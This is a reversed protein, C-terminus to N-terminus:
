NKPLDQAPLWLEDHIQQNTPDIHSAGMTEVSSDRFLVNIKGHHRLRMESSWVDLHDPGVVDAVPKAYDLFLIKEPDRDEMRHAMGNMGYHSGYVHILDDDVEGDTGDGNGGNNGGNDNPDETKFSLVDGPLSGRPYDGLLTGDPAYVKLPHNGSKGPGKGVSYVEVSTTGDAHHEIILESDNYDQVNSGFEFLLHYRNSPYTHGPKLRALPGPEISIEVLPRNFLGLQIYPKKDDPDYYDGTDDPGGDTGGGAGDTGGGPPSSTDALLGHELQEGSSPCIFAVDVNALMPRLEATWRDPRLRQTSKGSVHWHRYAIELQHLNSICHAMRASERSQELAPLSISILLFIIAVVVLLEVISFGRTKKM